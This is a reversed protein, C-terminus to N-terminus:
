AQGRWLGYYQLGPSGISTEGAPPNYRGQIDDNYPERYNQQVAFIDVAQDVIMRQLDGYMANRKAVDVERKAQMILKDVDANELYSCNNYSAGGKLTESHYMPYFAADPDGSIFSPSVCFLGNFRTPDGVVAMSAGWEMENLNINIGIKSAGDRLLLGDERRPEEGSPFIFDLNIEGPKFGSADMESKAKQLDYEYHNEPIIAGQFGMPLPGYLRRHGAIAASYIQSLCSGYDFAYSLARRVHVNSLFENKNNMKLLVVLSRCPFSYVKMGPTTALSNYVDEPMWPDACNAEHAILMSKITAVEPVRRHEAEEFYNQPWGRWYEPFRVYKLYEGVKREKLIYPGTGADNLELWATGFDGYTGYPGDPKRNAEVLKPNVIETTTLNNVFNLFPFLLTFRIAYKDVVEIGDPTLFSPLTIGPLGERITMARIISYKVADADMISGDHFKVGKRLYFTWTKGDPTNWYEALHPDITGNPFVGGEKVLPDYCQCITVSTPYDIIKHPDYSTTIFKYVQLLRQPSPVTSATGTETVTTVLEQPVAPPATSAFAGYGAAAGVALGLVGAGATKLFDRRKPKEETSM